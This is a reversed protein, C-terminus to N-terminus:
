GGYRKNGGSTICYRGGRPGTCVQHSACSCSSSQAAPILPAATSSSSASSAPAKGHRYDWPPTAQGSSLLGIRKARANNEADAYAQRDEQSQENEYAKYHWALGAKVQSLNVDKGDVLVKGLTRGYKDTKSWEVSVNKGYVLESLNQKSRSGFEQDKEPADIGSLRIKHQRNADDLVTITDGDTIGVVKGVLTEAFVPSLIISLFCIALFSKKMNKMANELNLDRSGHAGPGNWNRDNGSLVGRFKALRLSQAFVM